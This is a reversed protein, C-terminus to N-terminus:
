ADDGFTVVQVCKKGFGPIGFVEFSEKVCSCASEPVKRSVHVYYDLCYVELVLGSVYILLQQLRLYRSFSTPYLRRPVKFSTGTIVNVGSTQSLVRM